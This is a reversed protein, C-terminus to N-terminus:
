CFGDSGCRCWGFLRCSKSSLALDHCFVTRLAAGLHLHLLTLFNCSPTTSAFLWRQGVFHARSLSFGDLFFFCKDCVVYFSLRCDNTTAPDSITCRCFNRANCRTMRASSQSFIVAHLPPLYLLFFSCFQHLHLSVCVCVCVCVPLQEGQVNCM